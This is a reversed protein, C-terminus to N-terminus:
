ADTSSLSTANRSEFIMCDILFRFWCGQLFHFILGEKGDMFGFRVVYRYVWYLFPRIFLPARAYVGDRLWRKREIHNGFVDSRVRTGHRTAVTLEEAELRSWRTHRLTWTGIDSTVVDSYDNRLTKVRGQLVFHQDYLRDECVGNDKRFL